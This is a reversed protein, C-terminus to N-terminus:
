QWFYYAFFNLLKNNYHNNTLDNIWYDTTKVSGENYCYSIVDYVVFSSGPLIECIIDNSKVKYRKCNFFYNSARYEVNLMKKPLLQYATTTKYSNEFFIVKVIYLVEKTIIKKNINKNNKESSPYQGM